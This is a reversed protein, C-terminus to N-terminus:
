AGDLVFLCGGWIYIHTKYLPPQDYIVLLSWAAIKFVLLLLVSRVAMSSFYLFALIVECNWLDSLATRRGQRNRWSHTSHGSLPKPHLISIGPWQQLHSLWGPWVPRRSYSPHLSERSSFAMYSIPIFYLHQAMMLSPIFTLWPWWAANAKSSFIYYYTNSPILFYSLPKLSSSSIRPLWAAQMVHSYNQLILHFLCLILTAESPSNLHRTM